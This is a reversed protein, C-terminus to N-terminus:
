NRLESAEPWRLAILIRKLHGGSHVGKAETIARERQFHFGEGLPLTDAEADGDLLKREYLYASAM